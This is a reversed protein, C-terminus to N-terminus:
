EENKKKNPDFMNERAFRKWPLPEGIEFSMKTEPIRYETALSMRSLKLEYEYNQNQLDYIQAQIEYLKVELAALSSLMEKTEKKHFAKLENMMDFNDEVSREVMKKYKIVEQEMEKLREETSGEEVPGELDEKHLFGDEVHLIQPHKRM